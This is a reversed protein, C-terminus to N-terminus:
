RAYVNHSVEYIRPQIFNDNVQAVILVNERFIDISAFVLKNM